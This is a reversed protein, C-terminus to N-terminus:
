IFWELVLSFLKIKISLMRRPQVRGAAAFQFLNFLGLQSSIRDTTKSPLDTHFPSHPFQEQRLTVTYGAVLMVFQGLASHKCLLRTSHHYTTKPVVPHTNQTSITYQAHCFDHM